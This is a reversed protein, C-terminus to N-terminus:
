KKGPLKFWKPVKNGGSSEKKPAQVITPKENDLGSEPLEKPQPVVIKQAQQSAEPTLFQKTRADKPVSEDWLLTVVVGGVLKYGKILTKQDDLIATRGPMMVLRFALSPNAMQKRVAAHLMSGTANPGWNWQASSNDPFRVKTSVTSTAALKAAKEAAKQELELDSLLRKNQSQLMLQAQHSQAHAITPIFDTDEVPMLAAAPTSTTPASFIGVPQLPDAPLNQIDPGKAESKPVTDSEVPEPKIPITNKLTDATSIDKDEPSLVPSQSGNQEHKTTEDTKEEADKFYANIEEIASFLPQDTVKFSLRMLVSGSNYGLQSLTKQFDAFTTFERGMINLTPMEYYLQGAGSTSSIPTARDTIRLTRGQNAPGSEVQRLVQWLTFTSPFKSIIRGAPIQTSEPHPLQIAVSVISPTKPKVVLDLKAGSTLKSQRFPSSLDVLKQNHRLQYKDSSINFKKCAEALVDSLYTSPTVKVQTRKLDSGLVWVHSSM